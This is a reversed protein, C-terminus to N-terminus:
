FRSLHSRSRTGFTYFDKIKALAYTWNHGFEEKSLGLRRGAMYVVHDQECEISM